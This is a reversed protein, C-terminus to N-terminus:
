GSLCTEFIEREREREVLDFAEVTSCAWALTELRALPRLGAMETDQPLLSLPCAASM